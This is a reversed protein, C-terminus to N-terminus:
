ESVRKVAKRGERVLNAGVDVAGGVPGFAASMGAGVASSLNDLEDIFDEPNEPDFLDDMNNVAKYIDVFAKDALNDNPFVGLKQGTGFHEQYFDSNIFFRGAKDILRGFVFLGNIPGLALALTWQEASWERDRDEDDGLLSAIVGAMVQSVSAMVVHAVIARQVDLAKNKSKGTALRRIAMLEIALTKRQDSVFMSMSRMFPNGSREYLARAYVDSPQASTAIMKEVRAIAASDALEPTMQPNDRMYGRRYYDFSIAAGLATWGGDVMSMPMMGAQMVLIAQSGTMSSGQMAVRSEASFGSEIRRRIIDSSWMASVESAFAKPEMFARAMGMMYNHAPVDALLPNLMAPTQKIIPSIRFALGKYARFQMFWRWMRSIDV